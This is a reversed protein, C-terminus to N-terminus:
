ALELFLRDPEELMGIIDYAFAAGVHGDVIRHDFSLSLLMVEGIVIQGDRVVPRQKIQHVGLIGVEPFNLIPTAFLGGQKGLSTVTFTSGSLEASSLTGARAGRGLRDIERSVELISLTDADRVVPVMLGQDTSAAIGINYYNRTVLENTVEDLASNLIPARKLAAVVAKVIFPLYTLKTDRADAHPKLRAHLEKLRTVDCEEVFTFHAATNKSTQMREAIKRRIGVFPKRTERAAQAPTPAVVAIPARAGSTGPAAAISSSAGGAAAVGRVEAPVQAYAHAQADPAASAGKAAFAQVDERTVRGNAGTPRVQRLDVGADRALKRTAPTALPKESFYAPAAAVAPAAPAPAAPAKKTFFSSGPLSERIDGVATAAPGDSKAAPAAAAPVGSAVATHMAPQAQNAALAPNAALAAHAVPAAGLEIQVLVAGVKVVQGVAGGLSAITGAKPAGITVTAKDTMVEVMPDDEKVVDGTKVSWAVIEGETVGEGIDPLKFDFIAM